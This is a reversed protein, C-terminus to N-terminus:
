QNPEQSACVLVNSVFRKGYTKAAIAVLVYQSFLALFYVCYITGISVAFFGMLSFAILFIISFATLDRAFLWDHHAEHVRVDGEVSRYMKYWLRNQDIPNIPFEGWRGKLKCVDIRHDTHIYKSFAESGPLPNSYKWFVLRAKWDPSVLGNIVLIIVPAVAIFIGKESMLVDAIQQVDSTEGGLVMVVFVALNAVLFAILSKKYRSKLNDM